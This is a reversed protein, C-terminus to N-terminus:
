VFEPNEYPEAVRERNRRQIRIVVRVPKFYGARGARAYMHRAFSALPTWLPISRPSSAPETHGPLDFIITTGNMVM